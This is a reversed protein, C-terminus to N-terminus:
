DLAVLLYGEYVKFLVERQIKGVKVILFVALLVVVCLLHFFLLLFHIVVKVQYFYIQKPLNVSLEFVVKLSRGIKVVELLGNM